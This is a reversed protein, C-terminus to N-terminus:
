STIIYGRGKKSVIFDEEKIKDKLRKIVTRLTVDSTNVDNWIALKLEDKTKITEKNNLLAKLL